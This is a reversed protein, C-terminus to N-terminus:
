IGGINDRTVSIVGSVYVYVCRCVTHMDGGGGVVGDIYHVHIHNVQIKQIHEPLPPEAPATSGSATGISGSIEGRSLSEDDTGVAAVRLVLLALECFM